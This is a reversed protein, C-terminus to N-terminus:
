TGRCHQPIPWGKFCFSELHIPSSSLSPMSQRRLPFVPASRLESIPITSSFPTFSNQLASIPSQITKYTKLNRTVLISPHMQEIPAGFDARGFSRSLSLSVISAHFAPRPLFSLLLVLM